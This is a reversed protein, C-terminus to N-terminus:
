KTGELTELLQEIYFEKLELAEAKLSLLEETRASQGQPLVIPVSTGQTTSATKLADELSKIQNQLKVIQANQDDVKSKLSSAEATKAQLQEKAELFQKTVDAATAQILKKQYSIIAQEYTKERRAAEELSKLYEEHSTKLLKLLEEERHKLDILSFKYQAAEVKFSDPYRDIIASYTKQAEDLRGMSFLSEAIWFFTNATYPGEPNEKLFGTLVDIAGQYDGQLYLLRGKQYVGDVRNPHDPYRAIFLELNQEAEPLQRLAMYSLAMWYYADGHVERSEADLIVDRFSLLAEDYQALAFKKQGDIILERGRAIDACLPVALIILMLFFSITKTSLAKNSRMM